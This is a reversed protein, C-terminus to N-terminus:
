VTESTPTASDVEAEGAAETPIGEEEEATLAAEETLVAEEVEVLVAAMDVPRAATVAVALHAAM